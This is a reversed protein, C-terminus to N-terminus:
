KKLLKSLESKVKGMETFDFEKGFKDGLSKIKIGTKRFMIQCIHEGDCHVEFDDGVQKIKCDKSKLFNKVSDQFKDLKVDYDKSKVSKELNGEEIIRKILNTLESETLKIVKKM